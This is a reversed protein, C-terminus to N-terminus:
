DQPTEVLTLYESYQLKIFEMCANSLVKETNVEVDPNAKGIQKVVAELPIEFKDPLEIVINM